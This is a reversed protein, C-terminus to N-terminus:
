LGLTRTPCSDSLDSRAVAAGERGDGGGQGVGGRRDGLLQGLQFGFHTDRQQFRDSPPHPRGCLGLDENGM